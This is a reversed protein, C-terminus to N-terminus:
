ISNLCNVNKISLIKFLLTRESWVLQKSTLDVNKCKILRMKLLIKIHNTNTKTFKYNHLNLLPTFTHSFNHIQPRKPPKTAVYTYCTRTPLKHTECLTWPPQSHARSSNSPLSDDSSCSERNQCCNATLLWSSVASRLM